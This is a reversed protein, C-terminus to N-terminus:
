GVSFPPKFASLDVSAALGAEATLALGAARYAATAHAQAGDFEEQPVNAYDTVHASVTLVADGDFPAAALIASATWAAM